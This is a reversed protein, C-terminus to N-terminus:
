ANGAARESLEIDDPEVGEAFYHGYARGLVAEPDWEVPGVPDAEALADGLHLLDAIMDAIVTPFDEFADNRKEYSEYEPRVLEAKSHAM